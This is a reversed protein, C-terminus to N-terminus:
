LLDGIGKVLLLAAIVAFVVATVAAMNAELWEKARRLPGRVREGLVVYGLVPVAVGLAGVASFLLLAGAAQPLSPQAAGMAVGGAAAFVLIKPNAAALMVALRLASAPSAQGLGAMWGPPEKGKGRGAWQKAALFLLAVGLLVRLWSLWTRPQASGSALVDSLVLFVATAALVGAAWGALFALGTPKPRETFLLLIAPLIPFPSVAIALAAPLSDAIM